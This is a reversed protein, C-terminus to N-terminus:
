KLLYEKLECNAPHYRRYEELTYNNFYTDIIRMATGHCVFLVNEDYKEKVADIENYLRQAALVISEGGTFRKFPEYKAIAYQPDEWAAGEYIGFSVEHLKERIEIDIGLARSIPMATAIARRLPSVLIHRIQNQEQEARLREALAEAQAVGKATLDAESTGCIIHKLNWDTEGHRTVFLKM